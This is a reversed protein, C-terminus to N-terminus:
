AEAPFAGVVEDEDVGAVLQLGMNSVPIPSRMM